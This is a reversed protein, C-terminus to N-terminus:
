GTVKAIRDNLFPITVQDYKPGRIQSWNVPRRGTVLDYMADVGMYSARLIDARNAQQGAGTHSQLPSSCDPDTFVFPEGGYSPTALQNMLHHPNAHETSLQRVRADIEKIATFLNVQKEWAAKREEKTYSGQELRTAEQLTAALQEQLETSGLSSVASVYAIRESLRALNSWIKMPQGKPAHHAYAFAEFEVYSAVGLSPQQEPDYPLLTETATVGSLDLPRGQLGVEGLRAIIEEIPLSSGQEPQTLPIFIGAENGRPELTAMPRLM